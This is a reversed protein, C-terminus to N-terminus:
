LFVGSAPRAFDDVEVELGMQTQCVEADLTVFRAVVVPDSRMQSPGVDFSTKDEFTACFDFGVAVKIIRCRTSRAAAV